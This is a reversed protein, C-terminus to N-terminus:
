LKELTTVVASRFSLEVDRLELELRGEYDRLEECMARLEDLFPAPLVEDGVESSFNRIARSVIRLKGFVRHSSTIASEVNEVKRTSNEAGNASKQPM